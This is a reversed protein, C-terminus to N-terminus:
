NKIAEMYLMVKQYENDFYYENRLIPCVSQEAFSLYITTFGAQRLMRELKAPNWWNLHNERYKPLIPLKCKSTCFNLADEFSMNKFLIRFQEDSIKEHAPELSKPSAGCAFHELFAQEITCHKAWYFYHKDNNRFARFDLDINPTVVRFVGGPKLIRKVEKLMLLAADDTLHEITARSYVIEATDSDVPLPTLTLFDHAIDRDPNYQIRNEWPRDVDINTWLPHHIGCGFDFHGGASINYFKRNEVSYNGFLERYLKEDNHSKIKSLEYGTVRIVKRLVDRVM